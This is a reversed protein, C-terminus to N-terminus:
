FQVPVEDVDQRDGSDTDEQWLTLLAPGSAAARADIAFAFALLAAVVGLMVVQARRM